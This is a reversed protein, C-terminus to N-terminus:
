NVTAVRAVSPELFPLYERPAAEIVPGPVPYVVEVAAAETAPYRYRDAGSLRRDYGFRSLSGGTPVPGSLQNNYLYLFRLNSLQVLSTPIKGSFKNDSLNLGILNKLKGLSPPLSGTLSNRFLQLYQLNPLDGIRPSLPGSLGKFALDVRTVHNNNDCTIHLWTCPDALSPDWSSLVNRPDQLQNKVDILADVEANANCQISLLNCVVFGGVVFYMVILKSISTAVM